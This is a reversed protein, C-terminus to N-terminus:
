WIIDCNSIPATRQIGYREMMQGIFGGRNYGLWLGNLYVIKSFKIGDVLNWMQKFNFFDLHLM